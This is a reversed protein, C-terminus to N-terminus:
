AADRGLICFINGPLVSKRMFSINRVTYILMGLLLKTHQVENVACLKKLNM